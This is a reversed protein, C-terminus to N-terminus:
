WVICSARCFPHHKSIHKSIQLIINYFPHSMNFCEIHSGNAPGISCAFVRSTDLMKSHKSTGDSCMDIWSATGELVLRWFLNAILVRQYDFVAISFGRCSTKIPFHDMTSKGALWLQNALTVEATWLGNKMHVHWMSTSNAEGYCFKVVELDALQQSTVQLDSSM